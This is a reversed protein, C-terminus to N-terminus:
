VHYYTEAYFNIMEFVRLINKFSLNQGSVEIQEECALEYLSKDQDIGIVQCNLNPAETLGKDIEPIPM